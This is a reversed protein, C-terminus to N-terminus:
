GCRRWRASCVWTSRAARRRTSSQPRMDTPRPADSCLRVLLWHMMVVWSRTRKARLRWSPGAASGEKARTQRNTAAIYASDAAREEAKEAALEATLTTVKREAAVLAQGSATRLENQEALAIETKRRREEIALSAGRTTTRLARSAWNPCACRKARGASM